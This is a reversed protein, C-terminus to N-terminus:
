ASSRRGLRRAVYQQEMALFRRHDVYRRFAYARLEALRRPTGALLECRELVKRLFLPDARNLVALDLPRGPFAEQLEAQLAGLRALTPEPDRLLVGVDVDSHPHPTGGATSGFRLLLDADHRIAIAALDPHDMPSLM